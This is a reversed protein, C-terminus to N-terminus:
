MHRLLAEHNALFSGFTNCLRLLVTQLEACLWQGKQFHQLQRSALNLDSKRATLTQLSAPWEILTQGEDVRLSTQSTSEYTLMDLRMSHIAAAPMVVTCCVVIYQQCHQFQQWPQCDSRELDIDDICGVSGYHVTRM